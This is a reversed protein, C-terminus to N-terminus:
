YQLQKNKRLIESSSNSLWNSLKNVECIQFQRWGRWSVMFSNITNVRGMLELPKINKLMLIVSNFVFVVINNM